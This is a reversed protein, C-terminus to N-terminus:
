RPGQLGGRTSRGLCRHESLEPGDVDRLHATVLTPREAPDRVDRLLRRQDPRGPRGPPRRQGRQREAPDAAHRAPARDPRRRHRRAPVRVVTISLEHRAHRLRRRPSTADLAKAPMLNAHQTSFVKFGDPMVPNSLLLDYVVDNEVHAAAVGLAAQLQGSTPSTTACCPKGPSSSSAGSGRSGCRCPRRRVPLWRRIRWAGPDRAPRPLRRRRRHVVPLGRRHDGDDVARVLKCRTATPTSSSANAVNDLLGPFDSTTLYGQARTWADIGRFLIVPVLEQARLAFPDEHGTLELHKQALDLLRDDRWERMAPTAPYRSPHPATSSTRRGPTRSPASPEATASSTSPSAAASSPMVPALVAARAERRARTIAAHEEAATVLPGLTGGSLDQLALLRRAAPSRVHPQRLARLLAPPRARLTALATDVAASEAQALEVHISM